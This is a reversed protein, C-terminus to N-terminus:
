GGGLVIELPRDNAPEPAAGGSGPEEGGQAPPRPQEGETDTPSPSPALRSDIAEGIKPGPAPLTLEPTGTAPATVTGQERPGAPQNPAPAPQAASRPPTGTFQLGRVPGSEALAGAVSGGSAATSARESGGPASAPVTVQPSGSSPESVTSSEGGAAIGAAISGGLSLAFVLLVSLRSHSRRRSWRHPGYLQDRVVDTLAAVVRPEFHTGASRRVEALAAAASRGKRYPRDSCIAHFADACCIIRSGFPIQEGELQDPYGTGDWHEHSHRVLGAVSRFDEISLLIREGIVTHRRILDWEPPTPPDPKELLLRPIAVKGIDHLRAGVGVAERQLGSLGLRDAMRLAIREVERSHWAMEAGAAVLMEDAM